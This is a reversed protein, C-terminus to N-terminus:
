HLICQNNPNITLMFPIHDIDFLQHFLPNASIFKLDVIRMSNSSDDKLVAPFDAFWSYLKLISHNPSKQLLKHFSVKEFTYSPYTEIQSLLSLHRLEYHSTQDVIVKWYLPSFLSPLVHISRAEQKLVTKVRELQIRQVIKGFLPYVFIFCFCSVAIMKRKKPTILCFAVGVFLVGTLILDIIFVCPIACRYNTFPSFLQTGYSTILDLFLHLCILSYFLVFYRFSKEEKSSFRLIGTLIISLIVGGILSHCFGRHHMLYFERGFLAAFNDIDPLSAAIMCFIHQRKTQEPLCFSVTLGSLVHTLPDV